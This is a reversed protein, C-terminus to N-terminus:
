LFLVYISSPTNRILNDPLFWFFGPFYSSKRINDWYHIGALIPM